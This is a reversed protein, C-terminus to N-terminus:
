ALDLALWAAILPLIGFLVFVPRFSYHDVLWGTLLSFIMGGFGSGTSAFGWISAVAEKPFVDGPLALLNALAGCYGFTAISVLAICQASGRITGVPLACVMMASFILVAIRRAVASTTGLRLIGSFVIGGALNGAGATLFPVWATEGIQRLSFGHVVKLYQPFWFTYFYWVPDSFVKSLTFQWLFRSRLLLKLPIRAAQHKPAATDREWLVSLWAALWAFGLLGVVTFATRWGTSFSGPLCRLTLIAGVSAGSNFVGLGSLAGGSPVVRRDVQGRCSLTGAEGAGLLFRFITLSIVGGSFAHLVEAASWWAITLSYGIKSGLLDLLRGSVGNMITYALMFAFIIHSYGESSIHLEELLVPAMVSLTQRDFYNIVTALFAFGLVLWKRRDSMREVAGISLSLM